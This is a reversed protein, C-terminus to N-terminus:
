RAAAVAGDGGRLAALYTPAVEIPPRDIQRTARADLTGGAPLFLPHSPYDVTARIRGAEEARRFIAQAVAAARVADTQLPGSPPNDEPVAGIGTAGELLFTDLLLGIEAGDGTFFPLRELLRRRGGVSRTVPGALSALEPFLMSLLPRALLEGIAYDGADSPPGLVLGTRADDVLLHTILELAEPPSGTADLWVVIEGSTAGLGRWMADGRGDTAPVEPMIAAATVANLGELGDPTGARTVWVVEDVSTAYAELEDAYALIAHRDAEAPVTVIASVRAARSRV